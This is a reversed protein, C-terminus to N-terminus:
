SVNLFGKHGAECSTQYVMLVHLEGFMVEHDKM